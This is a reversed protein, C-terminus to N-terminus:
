QKLFKGVQATREGTLRVFYIGNPLSSIDIQTKPETIQHTILRKGKLNFISLSGKTNTEVTITTFTPNPYVIIGELPAKLDNIGVTHSYYYTSDGGLIKTGEENWIKSSESLIFDNADYTHKNQAYKIWESGNWKHSSASTLNNNADYSFAHLLFNNFFIDNWEQWLETTINNDTDYAYTALKDNDWANGNWIQQLYSTKEHNTNYTWTNFYVNQWTNQQWEQLLQSTLNNNGDYTNSGQTNNVWASGDWNQRLSSTMNNQTDYTLIWQETNVWTDNNWSQILISTQNNNADYTSSLLLINQWTNGKWHQALSSKENNNTDYTYTYRGDNIWISDNWQRTLESTQKNNTDYTYTYQYSNVWASENWIQWTESLLNHDADYLIDIIKYHFQWKIRLTDFNWDYISDVIPNRGATSTNMHNVPESLRRHEIIDSTKWEKNGAKGQVNEMSNLTPHQLNFAPYTSKSSADFSFAPISGQGVAGNLIFLTVLIIYIKKMPIINQITSGYQKIKRFSRTMLPYSGTRSSLSLLLLFALRYLNM